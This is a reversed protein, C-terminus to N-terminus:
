LLYSLNVKCTTITIIANAFHYSTYHSPQQHLIRTIFQIEGKVTAPETNVHVRACVCMCVYVCVCVCM